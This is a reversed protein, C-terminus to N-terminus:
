FKGSATWLTPIESKPQVLEESSVCQLNTELKPTTTTEQLFQILRQIDAGVSGQSKVTERGGNVDSSEDLHVLPQRNRENLFTGFDKSHKGAGAVVGFCSPREVQKRRPSQFIPFLM